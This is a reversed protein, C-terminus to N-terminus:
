KEKENSAKESAMKSKSAAESTRNRKLGDEMTYIYINLIYM